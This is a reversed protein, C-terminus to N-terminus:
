VSWQLTTCRESTNFLNQPISIMTIATPERLIGFTNQICITFQQGETVTYFFDEEVFNFEVDSIFWWLQYTNILLLYTCQCM